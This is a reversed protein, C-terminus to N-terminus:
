PKEKRAADISERTLLNRWALAYDLREREEVLEAELEEIRQQRKHNWESAEALAAIADFGAEDERRAAEDKLYDMAAEYSM